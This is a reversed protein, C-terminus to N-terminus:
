RKKVEVNTKRSVEKWMEDNLQNLLTSKHEDKKFIKEKEKELAHAEEVRMNKIKHQIEERKNENKEM